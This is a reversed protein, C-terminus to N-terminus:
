SIQLCLWAAFLPNIAPLSPACGILCVIPPTNAQKAAFKTSLHCGLEAGTCLADCGTIRKGQWKQRPFPPKNLIETKDREKERCAMYRYSWCMGVKPERTTNHLRMDELAFLGPGQSYYLPSLPEVYDKSM